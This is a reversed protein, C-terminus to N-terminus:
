TTKEGNRRFGFLADLLGAFSYVLAAPAFVLLLIWVAALIMPRSNSGLTRQHILALGNLMLMFLLTLTLSAGFAGVFGGSQAVLMAGILAFVFERPLNIAHAPMRRFPLREARALYRISVWLSFTLVTAVLMSAMPAFIGVFMRSLRRMTMPDPAGAASDRGFDLMMREFSAAVRAEFSAYSTDIALAGILMALAAYVAIAGLVYTGFVRGAIPAPTDAPMTRMLWTVLAAVLYAPIAVMVAFSLAVKSGFMLSLGICGFLGGLAAVLPHWGLGAVMLPAPAIFTLPVLLSVGPTVLGSLFASALGAAAAIAFVQNM